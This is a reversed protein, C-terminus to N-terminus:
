VKLGKYFEFADDDVRSKLFSGDRDFNKMTWGHAKGGTKGIGHKIGLCPNHQELVIKKKKRIAFDWIEIDLFVTNDSPWNFGELAAIRFGTCFLSSRNKHNFTAYTKTKLNYYVTSSYGIFDFDLVKTRLYDIPYWDDDEVVFAYECGAEKARAIGLKMRPVLDPFTGRPPHDVIFNPRGEGM